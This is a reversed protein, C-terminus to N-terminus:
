GRRGCYRQRRRGGIGVRSWPHSTRRPIPKALKGRYNQNFTQEIKRHQPLCTKAVGSTRQAGMEVSFLKLLQTVTRANNIEGEIDVPVAAALLDRLLQCLAQACLADGSTADEQGSAV